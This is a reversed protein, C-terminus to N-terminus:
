RDESPLAASSASRSRIRRLVIGLTECRSLVLVPIYAAFGSVGYAALVAIRAPLGAHPDFPLLLRALVIAGGMVTVAGLIKLQEPVIRRLGLGGLKRSLSWAQYFAKFTSSVTTALALGGIGMPGVLIFNMLVNMVLGIMGIVVPTMSDRLAYFAKATLSFLGSRMLWPAYFALAYAVYRANDPTFSGRQFLVSVLPLATTTLMVALPFMVLSTQNLGSRLSELLREKDGRAATASYSIEAMVAFPSFAIAFVLNKIRDGYDLATISSAMLFSALMKDAVPGLFGALTGLLVPGAMGVLQRLHPDKELVPEPRYGSRFAAFLMYVFAAVFGATTSWPLIATGWATGVAYLVGTSVALDLIGAMGLTSFRKEYQIFSSLIGTLGKILVMPAMLRLMHSSLDLMEPSGGPSVAAVASRSFCFLVATLLAGAATIWTLVLNMFRIGGRRGRKELVRAYIPLFTSGFSNVILDRVLFPLVLAVAFADTKWDAGFFRTIGAFRLYSLIAAALNTVSLM